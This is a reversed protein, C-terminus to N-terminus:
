FYNVYGFHIKSRRFDIPSNEQTGLAYNFTFIGIKTDFTIGAGFGVVYSDSFGSRTKTQYYGADCFINLYSREDFLFRLEMTGIGYLNSYISEEDFGRLTALGGIRLLDNSYLNNNFVLGGRGAIKITFKKAFPIFYEGYGTFQMQLQNKSTTTDSINLTDTPPSSIFNKTGLAGSFYANWGKRPNLRFDTREFQLGIGYYHVDINNIGAVTSVGDENLIKRTTNYNYFLKIHDNGRLMYMAAVNLQITFFATDIRYFNFKAEIGLPTNLIYPYMVEVKLNQTATQLRQWQINLLEGRKLLNQLRLKVDGTVLFDANKDNNPMIGV